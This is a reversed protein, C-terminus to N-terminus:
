PKTMPVPRDLAMRSLMKVISTLCEIGESALSEDIFALEHTADVIAGCEMASGRAIAYYRKQDPAKMRGSGEAINLPTSLSARRLQDSLYSHGPPILKAIHDAIGLFRIALRYVDLNRFNM